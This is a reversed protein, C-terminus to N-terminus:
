NNTINRRAVVLLGAGMIMLAIAGLVMTGSNSGTHPLVVTAPSFTAFPAELWNSTQTTWGQPFTTGTGVGGALGVAGPAGNAGEIGSGGHGTQGGNGGLGGLGGLGGGAAAMFTLGDNVSTADGAAGNVGNGGVQGNTGNTGAVVADVGNLGLQGMSGPGGNQGVVVTLTVTGNTTNVYTGTIKTGPGGVGALGGAGGQGGSVSTSGPTLGQGGDGGAGGTGGAGGNGGKLTITVAEGADLTCTTSSTVTGLALCSGSPAAMAPTAFRMSMTLAFAGALGLVLRRSPGFRRVSTSLFNM